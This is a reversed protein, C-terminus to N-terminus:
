VLQDLRWRPHLADHLLVPCYKRGTGEEIVHCHCGMSCDPCIGLQDVGHPVLMMALVHEPILGPLFGDHHQIAQGAKNYIIVLYMM